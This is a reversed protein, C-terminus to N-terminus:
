LIQCRFCSKKKIKNNHKGNSNASSHDKRPPGAGGEVPLLCTGPLLIDDVIVYGLKTTLVVNDRNAVINTITAYVYQATLMDGTRLDWMKLSRDHGGTLLCKDDHGFSLCVIGKFVPSKAYLEHVLRGTGLEWVRMTEGASGSALLTQDHSVSLCTLPSQHGVLVHLVKDQKLVLIEKKDTGITTYKRDDTLTVCTINGECNPKHTWLLTVSDIDWSSVSNNDTVAVLYRDGRTIWFCRIGGTAQDLQRIFQGTNLNWLKIFGAEDGTVVCNNDHTIRLYTVSGDKDTITRVDKGDKSNWVNVENESGERKYVVYGADSTVGVIGHKDIFMPFSHCRRVDSARNRLTYSHPRCALDPRSRNRADNTACAVHTDSEWGNLYSPFIADEVDSGIEGHGAYETPQNPISQQNVHRLRVAQVTVRAMVGATM